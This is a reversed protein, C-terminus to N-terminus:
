SQPAFVTAELAEVDDADLLFMSVRGSTFDNVDFPDTQDATACSIGFPILNKWQRMVNPYCCLGIGEYTKGSYEMSMTWRETVGNYLLGMTAITGDPLQLDTTQNAFNTLNTILSAM